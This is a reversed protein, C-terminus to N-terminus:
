MEMNTCLWLSRAPPTRGTYSTGIARVSSWYRRLWKEMDDDDSIAMPGPGDGHYQMEIIAIRGAAVLRLAIKDMDEVYPLVSTCIVIDFGFLDWKDNIDMHRLNYKVGTEKLKDEAINLSYKDIDVGVVRSAGAKAAYTLLDGYGCGVDLVSAGKFDVNEAIHDWMEPARSNIM